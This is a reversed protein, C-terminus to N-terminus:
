QHILVPPVVLDEPVSAAKNHKDWTGVWFTGLEVIGSLSADRISKLEFSLAMETSPIGLTFTGTSGENYTDVARYRIRIAQLVPNHAGIVAAIGDAGLQPEGEVWNIPINVQPTQFTTEILMASPGGNRKDDLDSLYDLQKFVDWLNEARVNLTKSLLALTTVDQNGRVLAVFNEIALSTGLSYGTGPLSPTTNSTPSPPSWTLHASRYTMTNITKTAKAAAHREEPNPKQLLDKGFVVAEAQAKAELTTQIMAVHTDQTFVTIVNKGGQKRSAYHQLRYDTFKRQHEAGVGASGGFQSGIAPIEVAAIAEVKVGASAGKKTGMLSMFTLNNPVAAPPEPTTEETETGHEAPMDERQHSMIQATLRSSADRLTDVQPASLELASTLAALRANIASLSAYGSHGKKADFSGNGLKSLFQAAQDKVARKESKNFRRAMWNSGQQKQIQSTLTELERKFTTLDTGLAHHLWTLFSSLDRLATDYMTLPIRGGTVLRQLTQLSSLRPALVGITSQNTKFFQNIREKLGARTGRTGVWGALDEQLNTNRAGDYWRPATDRVFVWEADYSLGAEAIASASAKLGILGLAPGGVDGHTEKARDEAAEQDDDSTMMTSGGTAANLSAEAKVGVTAGVKVTWQVFSGDGIVFCVPNDPTHNLGPQRFLGIVM